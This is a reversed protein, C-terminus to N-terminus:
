AEKTITRGWPNTAPRTSSETVPTSQGFGTLTTRPAAETLTAAYTKEAEILTDVHATFADTDLDGADTTPITRVAEAVVRDATAPHLDKVKDRATQTASEAVKLRANEARAAALDATLSEVQGAREEAAELEALREPSIEPMRNEKISENTPRGPQAEVPVYTTVARVETPTGTLAVTDDSNEYSQAWLTEPGTESYTNFYAVQQDPDFDRLYSRAPLTQQLQDRLDNATTEVMPAPLAAELLDLIKGGAGAKTVYDVSAAETFRKVIVGKRGDAEGQEVEAAARISVGIQDRMAEIVPAMHPYVTVDAYLGDAEMVADSSLYGALDRISREPRNMQDTRGPHDIYMPLSEHFIRDTAAETLATNSYYGSSGWRDGEIVRIRYRTAGNDASEVTTAELTGATETLQIRPM